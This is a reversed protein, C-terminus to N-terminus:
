SSLLLLVEKHHVNGTESEKDGHKERGERWCRNSRCAEDDLDIKM